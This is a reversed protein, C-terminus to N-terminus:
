TSIPKTAVAAPMPLVSRESRLNRKDFMQTHSM